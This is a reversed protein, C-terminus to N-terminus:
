NTNNVLSQFLLEKGERQARDYSGLTALIPQHLCLEWVYSNM